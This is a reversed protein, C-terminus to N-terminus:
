GSQVPQMGIGDKLCPENIAQKLGRVSNYVEVQETSSPRNGIRVRTRVFQGYDTRASIICIITTSRNASSYDCAYLKGVAGNELVPIIEVRFYSPAAMVASTSWGIALLLMFLRFLNKRLGLPMLLNTKRM